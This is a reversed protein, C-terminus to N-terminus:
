SSVKTPKARRRRDDSDRSVVKVELDSTREQEEQAARQEEALHAELRNQATFRPDERYMQQDHELVQEPPVLQLNGSSLM